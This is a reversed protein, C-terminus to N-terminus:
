RPCTPEGSGRSLLAEHARYSSRVFPASAVFGFGKRRAESGLKEFEGPTIYREVPLHRASPRLYQGLTLFRCGVALLDDMVALLEERTEGLGVMLGSKTPVEPAVAHAHALVSLSRRYEAGPRVVSYLAPVTELNHGFVDIGARAVTEVAAMDGRLDPVLVEVTVDPLLARVARVTRTFHAAGGDPVDDRTVSTLVVHSLALEAAATAVRAPEDPDLPEPPASEVACFRCGRTCRDGMLLFTATGAGYCEGINPCLANSCVTKVRHRALLARTNAGREGKRVKVRLWEPPRQPRSAVEAETRTLSANYCKRTQPYSVARRAWGPTHACAGVIAPHVM